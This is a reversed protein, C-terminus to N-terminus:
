AANRLVYPGGWGCVGTKSLPIRILLNYPFFAVPSKGATRSSRKLDCSQYSPSEVPQKAANITYVASVVGARKDKDRIRESFGAPDRM